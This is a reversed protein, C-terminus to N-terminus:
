CGAQAFASPWGGTAQVAMDIETMTRLTDRIASVMGLYVALDRETLTRGRRDKLWKRCM